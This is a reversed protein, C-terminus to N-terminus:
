FVFQLKLWLLHFRFDSNIHYLIMVNSLDFPICYEGFHSFFEKTVPISIVLDDWTIVFLHITHLDIKYCKSLNTGCVKWMSILVNSQLDTVFLIVKEYKSWVHKNTPEDNM